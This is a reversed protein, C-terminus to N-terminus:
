VVVVQVVVLLWALLWVLGKPEEGEEAGRWKPESSVSDVFRGHCSGAQKPFHTRLHWAKTHRGVALFCVCFCFCCVVFLLCCFWAQQQEECWWVRKGQLWAAEQEPTTTPQRARPEDFVNM